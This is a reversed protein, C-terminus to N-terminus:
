ERLAKKIKKLDENTYLHAHNLSFGRDKEFAEKGDGSLNLEVVSETRILKIMDANKLCYDTLKLRYAPNSNKYIMYSRLGIFYLPAVASIPSGTILSFGALVAFPTTLAFKRLKIEYEWKPLEEEMIKLHQIRLRGEIVSINHSTSAVTNEKGDGYQITMTNNNEDVEYCTIFDEYGQYNDM